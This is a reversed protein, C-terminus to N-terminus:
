PTTCTRRVPRSHIAAQPLTSSSSCVVSCSIILVPSPRIQRPASRSNPTDPAARFPLQAHRARHPPSRATAPFALISNIPSASLKTVIDLGLLHLMELLTIRVRNGTAHKSRTCQAFIIYHIEQNVNYLELATDTLPILYSYSNRETERHRYAFAWVTGLM